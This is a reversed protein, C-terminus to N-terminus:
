EAAATTVSAAGADTAAVGAGREFAAGLVGMARSLEAPIVWVKNATGNAIYPLQQLYQYALVTQDANGEHIALFVKAIAESEGEARLVRARADGEARLVAAQKEGEATLIASQKLGEATLIAARKDRDARMQKEMSEQVSAPPDVAKLEVRNVRIGWKGTAEDLVGRLQANINDRSTLTEELDLGGIVNRLTTVTLQEIAAIYNAIEYTAAKPDTVQFYIVTDINVVLNDSTIVPQPPFSVVQERMDILPLLRDVFPIVIALGPSLTRQYRGLREVIGARAQPIIRITRALIIIVLIILVLAAILSATTVTSM